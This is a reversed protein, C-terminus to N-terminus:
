ETAYKRVMEFDLEYGLGPKDLLQIYGDKDMAIGPSIIDGAFYAGSPMIDNPLNFAELSAAALNFVRGLGTELMGGCWIDIGHHLCLDHIKVTHFLGGIRPPKINIIRCSDMKIAAEATEPSHISEDLCIPTELQRQLQSHFYLDENGLPQEIMMVGFIDLAKFLEIDALTYASNADVMLPINEYSGRVQEVVKIDWGPQIKLKVRQYGLELNKKIEELLEEISNQVGISIGCPIKSKVGGLLKHLALGAKQAFVDWLAFEVGSKAMNHGRIFSVKDIYDEIGSIEQQTVAPAIYDRIIHLATELTEYSYFPGFVPCEGIGTGENTCVKVLVIERKFFRGISTEFFRKLPLSLAICEIRDIRM